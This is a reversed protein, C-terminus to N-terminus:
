GPGGWQLAPGIRGLGDADGSRGLGVRDSVPGLGKTGSKIFLAGADGAVFSYSASTVVPATGTAVTAALDAAMGTNGVNFGGGNGSGGTTRVEWTTSASLAM